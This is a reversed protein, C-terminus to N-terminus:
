GRASICSSGAYSAVGSGCDSMPHSLCDWMKESEQGFNNYTRLGRCAEQPKETKSERRVRRQSERETRQGAAPTVSEAVSRSRTPKPPVSKAVAESDRLSSVTVPYHRRNRNPDSIGNWSVTGAAQDFLQRYNSKSRAQPVSKDSESPMQYFAREFEAAQNKKTDELTKKGHFSSSWSPHGHYSNDMYQRQTKDIQELEAFVVCKHDQGLCRAAYNKMSPGFDKKKRTGKFKKPECFHQRPASSARKVRESDVIKDEHMIAQSASGNLYQVVKHQDMPLTRDVLKRCPGGNALRRANSAARLATKAHRQISERSAPVSQSSHLRQSPENLCVSRPGQPATSPRRHCRANGPM